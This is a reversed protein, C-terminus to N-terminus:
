LMSHMHAISAFSVPANSVLQWPDTQEHDFLRYRAVPWSRCLSLLDAGVRADAILFQVPDFISLELFPM